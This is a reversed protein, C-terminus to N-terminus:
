WRILSAGWTLGGGFAVLLALKGPTLRGQQRAEYLAIPISAASTNGYRDVNVFVKEEPAGLAKGVAQIIRINAQHPVILDVDDMTFGNRALIEEAVEAMSKVAVKFTQNGKMQLFFRGPDLRPEAFTEREGVGGGTLFDGFSGDSRLISDLLGSSGDGATYVAAAAGDGFLVCTARDKWNIIPSVIESAVVLINNAAGTRIFSDAVASAYIFGSCAAMVDFAACRAAGLEQQLDCATSPFTRTPALTAGIIMDLGSPALGAEALAERAAPAALQAATTGNNAIRRERIGTRTTIWEDTTDVMTELDRNTLRREPLNWGLGAIRARAAGGHGGRAPNM